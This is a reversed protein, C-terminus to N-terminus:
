KRMTAFHSAIERLFIEKKNSFALFFGPAIQILMAIWENIPFVKLKERMEEGFMKKVTEKIQEDTIMIEQYLENYNLKDGDYQFHDNSFIFPPVTGEFHLFFQKGEADNMEKGFKAAVKDKFIQRTAADYNNPFLKIAAVLHCTEHVYISRRSCVDILQKNTPFHRLFSHFLTEYKKNIIIVVTVTKEPSYILCAAEYPTNPKYRFMIQFNSKLYQPVNNLESPKIFFRDDVFPTDLPIMELIGKISQILRIVEADNTM